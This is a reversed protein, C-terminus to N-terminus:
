NVSISKSKEQQLVLKQKAYNMAYFIERAILRCTEDYKETESATNDFYRPDEYPLSFREEAGPVVPCSADAEACVMVASFYKRPNVANDYKKSFMAKPKFSNGYRAQYTANTVANLREVKFGARKLADVANKNFATEEIGGSYANVNEIGYWASAAMFWLQGMQSRRSNHTCIVNLTVAQKALSKEYIYDGLEELKKKREESIQSFENPLTECYQTLKKYLKSKKMAEQNVFPLMFLVLSLVTLSKM